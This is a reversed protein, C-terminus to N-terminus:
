ADQLGRTIEEFGWAGALALAEERALDAGAGGTQAVCALLEALKRAGPLARALRVGLMLTHVAEVARGQDMAGGVKEELTDILGEARAMLLDRLPGNWGDWRLELAQEMVRVATFLTDAREAMLTARYATLLAAAMPQLLGKATKALRELMVVAEPREELTWQGIGESFIELVQQCLAGGCVQFLDSCDPDELLIGMAEAEDAVQAPRWLVGPTKLRLLRFIVAPKPIDLAELAEIWRVQQATELAAFDPRLEHLRNHAEGGMMRAQKSWRSIGHQLGQYRAAVCLDLVEFLADVGAQKDALTVGAQKETEAVLHRVGMPVLSELAGEISATIRENLSGVVSAVSGTLSKEGEILTGMSVLEPFFGSLDVEPATGLWALVKPDPDDSTLALVPTGQERLFRLAQWFAPSDPEAKGTDVLAATLGSVNSETENEDPAVGNHEFLAPLSWEADPMAGTLIMLDFIRTARRTILAMVVKLGKPNASPLAGM